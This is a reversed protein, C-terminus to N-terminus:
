SRGPRGGPGVAPQGSKVRFPNPMFAGFYAARGLWYLVEFAVVGVAALVDVRRRNLYAAWVEAVVAYLM